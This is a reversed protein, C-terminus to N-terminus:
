ARFGRGRLAAQERPMEVKPREREFECALDWSSLSSWLRSGFARVRRWARWSRCCERRRRRRVGSGPLGDRRVVPDGPRYSITLGNRSSDVLATDAAFANAVTLFILFVGACIGFLGANQKKM